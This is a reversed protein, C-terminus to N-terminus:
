GYVVAVNSATSVVNGRKAKVRYQIKVGPIQNKHEYKTITITDILVWVDSDGIKAEIMFLTGPKNGNRNYRLTNTGDSTGTVVLSTPTIPATTTKVGDDVNFGAQEILSNSVNANIKLSSQILSAKKNLDNRNFKIEEKKGSLNDELTQREVLNSALAVRTTKANDLLTTDINAIGNNAEVTTLMNQVWIIFEANSLKYFSEAM